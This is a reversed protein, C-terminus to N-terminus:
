GEFGLQRRIFEAAVGRERLGRLSEAHDRKALRRGAEDRLLPHHHYRPTPLGLLAQLLRHLHTAEFLDEGRTVLSVEQLADDFTVALHYSCGIDRRVLVVDGLMEPRAIQVGRLEDHWTLDDRLSSLARQTHLRLAFSEGSAVRSEREGATLHRCTGPYVPGEPGQPAGGAAEIERLIERRTCFCPYLLGRDKLLQVAAAYEPLHDSQRRVPQQWSLGLWALDELLAVEYERRCRTFDIDEIRVLFSGGTRRAIDYALLASYAHGCHLLGTPSPAFRTTQPVTM